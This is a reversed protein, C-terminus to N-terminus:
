SFIDTTPPAQGSQGLLRDIEAIAARLQMAEPSLPADEDLSAILARTEADQAARSKAAQRQGAPGPKHNRHWAEHAARQELTMATLRKARKRARLELCALKGNFKATSVATDAAPYTPRHWGKGSPTAGGHFRCRGNQGAPQQCPEGDTRRAAECRPAHRRRANFKLCAARGMAKFRASRRWARQGPSATANTGSRRKM